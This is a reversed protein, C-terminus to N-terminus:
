HPTVWPTVTMAAPPQQAPVGNPGPMQAATRAPLGRQLTLQMAREIPIYVKGTKEDVGYRHLRQDWQERVKGLDGFYDTQLRPEPFTSRALAASADQPERTGVMSTQTVPKSTFTNVLVKFAGYLVLCVLATCIALGAGFGLVGRVNIDGREHEVEHEAAAPEFGQSRYDTSM